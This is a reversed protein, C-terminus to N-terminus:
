VAKFERQTYFKYRNVKQPPWNDHIKFLMILENKASLFQGDKVFFYSKM